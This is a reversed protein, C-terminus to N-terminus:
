LHCAETSSTSYSMAYSHYLIMVFVSPKGQPRITAVTAPGEQGGCNVASVTINIDDGAVLGTCHCPDNPFCSSPCM